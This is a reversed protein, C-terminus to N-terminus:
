VRSLNAMNSLIIVRSNGTRTAEGQNLYLLLLKLAVESDLKTDEDAYVESM